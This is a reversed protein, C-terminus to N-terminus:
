KRGKRGGGWIEKVFRRAAEMEPSSGLDYEELVQQLWRAGHGGVAKCFGELEGAPVIWLGVEKCKRKIRGFSESADGSPIGTEGAEKVVDWPSTKRFLRGIASSKEAAFPGDVDAGVLIRQIEQAMEKSTLWPKHQEVNTRVVRVEKALESWRGGLTEFLKELDDTGKLIDIDVITDVKVGLDVLARALKGIRHKGNAHVFLVDPNEGGNIEPLNLISSYFLCDSDSECIIVRRHFVGALVSSFKMLPDTGISRAQEKDLERVHNVNGKRDIRLVRLREPAVTLLGGLVDPSHTALFLQARSSQEQAILEGLLKAQPPHLFAEPEDLMLISPTLPAMLRLVVSAFSRMGDGQEALPITSDRLHRCYSESIRDEGKTPKVRRGVLLPIENGGLRFPILDQGFARRFYKSIRKELGDDRYLLQIPNSVPEELVKYSPAPNSGSIRDETELRM